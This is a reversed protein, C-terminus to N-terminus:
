FHMHELMKNGSVTYPYKYIKSYRLMRIPYEKDFNPM